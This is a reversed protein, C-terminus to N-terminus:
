VGEASGVNRDRSGIKIGGGLGATREVSNHRWWIRGDGCGAVRGTEALRVIRHDAFRGATYDDETTPEREVVVLAFDDAAEAHASIGGTGVVDDCPFSTM